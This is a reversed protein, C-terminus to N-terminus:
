SDRLQIPRAFSPGIQMIECFNVTAGLVGLLINRVVEANGSYLHCSHNVVLLRRPRM